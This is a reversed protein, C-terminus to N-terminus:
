YAIRPKAENEPLFDLIEGLRQSVCLISVSEHPFLKMTWCTRWLTQLHQVMPLPLSNKAPQASHSSSSWATLRVANWQGWIKIFLFRCSELTTDTVMRYPSLVSSLFSAPFSISGLCCSRVTQTSIPARSHTLVRASVWCAEWKQFILDSAGSLPVALSEIFM